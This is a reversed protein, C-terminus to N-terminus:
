LKQQKKKERRAKKSKAQVQTKRPPLPVRSEAEDFGDMQSQRSVGLEDFAGSDCATRSWGTGLCCRRTRLTQVFSQFREVDTYSADLPSQFLLDNCRP